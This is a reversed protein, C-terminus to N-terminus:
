VENLETLWEVYTQRRSAALREAAERRFASTYNLRAGLTGLIVGLLTGAIALAADM